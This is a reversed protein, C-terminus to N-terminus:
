RGRKDKDQKGGASAGTGSRKLLNEIEEYLSGLLTEGNVLQSRLSLPANDSWVAYPM